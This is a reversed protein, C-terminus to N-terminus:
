NETIKLRNIGEYNVIGKKELFQTLMESTLMSLSHTSSNFFQKCVTALYSSTVLKYTKHVDFEQGDITKLRISKLRDKNPDDKDVIAECLIGAVRPLHYLSGRSYTTIINLIDEGTVYAAVAENYFPDMALIDHITIDGASLSDIRTGGNNMICIDGQGEALLADCLMYTMQDKIKFPAVAKAVVRKFLPNDSFHDVMSAVLKNKNPFTKVDIYEAKKDTVKGKNLTLTIHTVKALRNKNQTILVGNHLPEEATLQTHTHGGIILDLWPSREAIEIDTQYGAHSLLITVDCSDSFSRYQGVVNEPQAFRIGEVNEPHTDPHGMLNLQVVGIIGVQIGDVDFRKTPVVHLHTEPSPFMNACIYSFNSYGMLPPLSKVDFDHNGVATANFGIQNMLSVVPYSSVEYMDNVPNGTRNDGASLVLLSPYLNRLSDAIAALKPFAELTAHMDNVALIHVEQNQGYANYTVSLVLGLLYTRISRMHM